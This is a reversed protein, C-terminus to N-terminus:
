FRFNTIVSYSKKYNDFGSKSSDYPELDYYRFELDANKAYVYQLGLGWGKAGNGGIYDGGAVNLTHGWGAPDVAWNGVKLYDVYVAFTGPNAVNIDKYKLRTWWGTKQADAPLDAANNRIGEGILTFNPGLKADFGYSFWKYNYPVAAGNLGGAVTVNNPKMYAATLNVNNSVKARLDAFFANTSVDFKNNADLDGYGASLKIKNDFNYTLYTGDIPAGNSSSGDWILGEGLTPLIRGVSASFNGNSYLFEARDYTLSDTRSERTNSNAARQNSENQAEIRGIFKLNDAIDATLNLRVREQFNSSTNNVASSDGGSPNQQYRIRADGTFKITSANKELNDVRVGLNNLETAFEAQLKDLVAKTEADAKESNAMAKAVVTAMEYRTLTRDGKYTGDGYGSVIGAKVLKNVAGYAWHQAPVDVFPNAPAALATGAVSLAFVAAMALSATKKM